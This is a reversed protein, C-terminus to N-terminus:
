RVNHSGFDSTSSETYKYGDTTEVSTEKQNGVSDSITETIKKGTSIEALSDSDDPTLHGNDAEFVCEEDSKTFQNKIEIENVVNGVDGQSTDLPQDSSIDEDETTIVGSDEEGPIFVSVLNELDIVKSKAQKVEDSQSYLDSQRSVSDELKTSTNIERDEVSSPTVDIQHVGEVTEKDATATFGNAAAKAHNNKTEEARIAKKENEENDTAFDDLNPIYVDARGRVMPDDNYDHPYKRPERHKKEGVPSIIDGRKSSSNEAVVPDKHPYKMPDEQLKGETSTINAPRSLGNEAINSSGNTVDKNKTKSQPCGM